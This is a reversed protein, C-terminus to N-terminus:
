SDQAHDAQFILLAAQGHERESRSCDQGFCSCLLRLGEGEGRCTHLRHRGLKGRATGTVPMRSAPEAAGGSSGTPTPLTFRPPSEPPARLLNCLLRVSSRVPLENGVRLCHPKRLMGVHVFMALSCWALVGICCPRRKPVFIGLHEWAM